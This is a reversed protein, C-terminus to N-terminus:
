ENVVESVHIKDKIFFYLGLVTTSLFGVTHTYLAYSLAIVPDVHFLQVLAFSTFSHYTGFGSPTPMAFAVGSVVMLMAASAFNMSHNDMMGYPFFPIYLLVIYVSWIAISTAAIIFLNKSDKAASFGSLFSDFKQDVLTRIKLPFIKAIHKMVSFFFEAKYFITVFLAILTISAILLLPKFVVLAPFMAGLSDSYFTLITVILVAFTIFDLMRELVVTGFAASKSVNELKGIAYPRIFEGLRPVVNNILYGIMVASFSNRLTINKKVPYLLYKWRLARIFHSFIGGVSLIVFWVWSLQLISDWLLALDKGRFALYMFGASLVISVVFQSIKKFTM